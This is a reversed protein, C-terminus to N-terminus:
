LITPVEKLYVRSFPEDAGLEYQEILGERRISVSNGQKIVVTSDHFVDRALVM